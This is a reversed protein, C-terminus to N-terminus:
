VRKLVHYKEGENACKRCLWACSQDVAVTGPNYRVLQLKLDEVIKAPPLTRGLFKWMDEAIETREVTPLSSFKANRLQDVTMKEVPVLGSSLDGLEPILDGVGLLQSDIGAKLLALSIRMANVSICCLWEKNEDAVTLELGEQGDVSHPKFRSECMLHLRVPTGILAKSKMRQRFGVYDFTIYPLRPVRADELARSYGVMTDIKTIISLLTSDVRKQLQQIDSRIVQLQESLFAVAKDVHEKLHEEMYDLHVHVENLMKEEQSCGSSGGESRWPYRKSVDGDTSQQLQSDLQEEVETLRRVIARSRERVPEMIEEVDRECLLEITQQSVRYLSAKPDEKWFTSMSFMSTLETRSMKSFSSTDTETITLVSLM